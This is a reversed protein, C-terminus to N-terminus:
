VKKGYKFFKQQINITGRCREKKTGDPNYCIPINKNYHYVMEPKGFNYSHSKSLQDNVAKEGGGASGRSDFEDYTYGDFSPGITVEWNVTLTNPDIEVDVKKINVAKVKYKTKYIKIGDQVKTNMRGGFKDSRRSQFAHLADYARPQGEASYSGKIIEEPKPILKLKDLIDPYKECEPHSLLQKSNMRKCKQEENELSLGISEEDEKILYNMGMIQKIRSINEQLNM